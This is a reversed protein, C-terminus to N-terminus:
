KLLTELANEMAQMRVQQRDGSFINVNVQTTNRNAWATWVTGIPKEASGGGPGAIGTIAICIDAHSKKLGGEAMERVTAESVEGFQDLTQPSVGVMEIKAKRSYTVFGYDFWDSSGAISTLWYSLGGGTCSEVTALHLKLQTLKLGVQAALTEIALTM